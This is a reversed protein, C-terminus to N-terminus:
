MSLQLMCICLVTVVLLLIVYLVSNLLKTLTFGVFGCILIM